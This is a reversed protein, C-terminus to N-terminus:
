LMGAGDGGRIDAHLHGIVEAIKIVEGGIYTSWPGTEPRSV